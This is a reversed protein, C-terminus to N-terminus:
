GNHRTPTISSGFWIRTIHTSQIRYTIRLLMLDFGFYNADRGAPDVIHVANTGSGHRENTVYGRFRQDRCQWVQGAKLPILDTM